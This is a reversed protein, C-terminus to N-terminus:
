STSPSISTTSTSGQPSRPKLSIALLVENRAKRATDRSVAYEAKLQKEPMDRLGDATIRGDRIAKSMAVKVAERRNPKRGRRRTLDTSTLISVDHSAETATATVNTTSLEGSAKVSSCATNDDAWWSPPPLQYRRAFDLVAEKTILIQHLDIAQPSCRLFVSIESGYIFMPVGGLDLRLGSKRGDVLPRTEDLRGNIIDELLSHRLAQEDQHPNQKDKAFELAWASVLQPISLWKRTRFVISM